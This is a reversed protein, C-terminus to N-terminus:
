AAKQYRDEFALVHRFANENRIIESLYGFFDSTKRAFSEILTNENYTSGKEQFKKIRNFIELYVEYNGLEHNLNSNVSIEERLEEDHTIKDVLTNLIEKISNLETNLTFSKKIPSEANEQEEEIVKIIKKSKEIIFNIEEERQKEKDGSDRYDLIEKNQEM